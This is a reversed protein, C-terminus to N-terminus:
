STLNVQRAKDSAGFYSNSSPQDVPVSSSFGLTSRRPRNSSLSSCTVTSWSNWGYPLNVTSYRRISVRPITSQQIYEVSRPKVGVGIALAVKNYIVGTVVSDQRTLTARLALWENLIYDQPVLWVYAEDRIHRSLASCHIQLSIYPRIAASEVRTAKQNAGLLWTTSGPHIVCYPAITSLPRIHWLPGIYWLPGIHFKYLKNFLISPISLRQYWNNKMRLCRQESSRLTNISQNTKLTHCPQFQPTAM